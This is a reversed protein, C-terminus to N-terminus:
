QDDKGFETGALKSEDVASEKKFASIHGFMKQFLQTAGESLAEQQEATFGADLWKKQLRGIEHSAYDRLGNELNKKLSKIPGIMLATEFVEDLNKAAM